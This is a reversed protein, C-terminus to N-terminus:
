ENSDGEKAELFADAYEFATQTVTEGCGLSVGKLRIHLEMFKLAIEDRVMDFSGPLLMSKVCM